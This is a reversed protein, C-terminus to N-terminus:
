TCSKKGMIKAHGWYVDESTEEIGDEDGRGEQDMQWSRKGNSTAHLPKGGMQVNLDVPSVLEELMFSAM